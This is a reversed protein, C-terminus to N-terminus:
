NKVSSMSHGTKNKTNAIIFTILFSKSNHCPMDCIPRFFLAKLMLCRFSCQFKLSVPTVHSTVMKSQLYLVILWWNVTQQEKNLLMLILPPKKSRGHGLPLSILFSYVIHTDMKMSWNRVLSLLNKWFRLKKGRKHCLTLPKLM